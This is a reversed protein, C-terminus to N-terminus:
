RAALAATLVAATSLVVAGGGRFMRIVAATLWPVWALAATHPFLAWAMMGGSLAFGAAALLSSLRSVGVTRALVWTGQFAVLIKLALTVLLNKRKM